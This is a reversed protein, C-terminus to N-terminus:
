VPFGCGPANMSPAPLGRNVHLHSRPSRRNLAPGRQQSRAVGTASMSKRVAPKKQRPECSSLDRAARPIVDGQPLMVPTMGRAALYRWPLGQLPPLDHSQRIRFRNFRNLPISARAAFALWGAPLSDQLPRALSSKFRLCRTSFGLPLGRFRESRRLGRKRRQPPLVRRSYHSELAPGDPTRSSPLPMPLVALSGPLGRIRGRSSYGAFLSPRTILTDQGARSRWGLPLAEALARVLLYALLGTAFVM